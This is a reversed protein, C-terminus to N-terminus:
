INFKIRYYLMSKNKIDKNLKSIFISEETITLMPLVKEPFQIEDVVEFDKNFVMLVFEKQSLSNYKGEKNHVPMEKGYFRYYLNRYSDFLIENYWFDIRLDELKKDPMNMISNDLVKSDKEQFSCKGGVTKQIHTKNDVIYINPDILYSLFTKDNYHSIYVKNKFGFYGKDYLESYRIEPKVINNTEINFYVIPSEKFFSLSDFYCSCCYHQLILNKSQMDYYFPNHDLVYVCDNNTSDTLSNLNWFNQIKDKSLLSIRYDQQIFISDLNHLSIAQVIGFSDINILSKISTKYLITKGSINIINISTDKDVYYAIYSRNNILKLDSKCYSRSKSLVSDFLSVNDTITYDIKKSSITNAEHYSNGNDCSQLLFYCCLIFFYKKIM